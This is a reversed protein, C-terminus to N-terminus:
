AADGLGLCRFPQFRMCRGVDAVTIEHKQDPRHEFLGLLLVSRCGGGCNAPRDAPADASTEAQDIGDQQEDEPQTRFHRRPEM